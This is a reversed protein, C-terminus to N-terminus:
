VIVDTASRTIYAVYIPYASAILMRSSITKNSWRQFTDAKKSGHLFFAKWTCGLFCLLRTQDSEGRLEAFLGNPLVNQYVLLLYCDPRKIYLSMAFTPKQHAKTSSSVAYPPQAATVHGNFYLLSPIRNHIQLTSSFAHVSVEDIRYSYFPAVLCIIVRVM